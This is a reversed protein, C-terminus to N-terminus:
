ICESAPGWREPRAAPWFPRARASRARVRAGPSADGFPRASPASTRRTAQVRGRQRRRLDPRTSTADGKAGVVGTARSVLTTTAAIVDRVHVDDIQDADGDGPEDSTEFAVRQGNDSMSPSYAEGNSQAGALGDARSILVPNSPGLMRTFIDGHGNTDVGAGLLTTSNSRFAVISGDASIRPDDAGKDGLVGNFTDASATTGATLNREFADGYGNNDGAVLNSAYSTFAVRKGDADLVCDQASQNGLM